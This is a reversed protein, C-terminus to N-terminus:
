WCASTKMQPPSLAMLHYMHQYVPRRDIAQTTSRSEHHRALVCSHTSSHFLRLVAWWGPHEPMDFRRKHIWYGRGQEGDEGREGVEWSHQLVMCNQLKDCFRKCHSALRTYTYPIICMTLEHISVPKIGQDRPVKNWHASVNEVQWMPRIGWLIVAFATSTDTQFPYVLGLERQNVLFEDLTRLYVALRFLLSGRQSDLTHNTINWMARSLHSKKDSTSVRGLDEM